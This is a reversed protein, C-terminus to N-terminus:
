QEIKCFSMKGGPNLSVMVGQRTEYLINRLSHICRFITERPM